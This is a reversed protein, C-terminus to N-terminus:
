LLEVALDLPEVAGQELLPGVQTGIGAVLLAGGGQVGPQVQVVM